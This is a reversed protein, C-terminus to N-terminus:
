VTTKWTDGNLKKMRQAFRCPGLKFLDGTAKGNIYCQQLDGSYGGAPMFMIHYRDQDVTSLDFEPTNYGVFVPPPVETMGYWNAVTQVGKSTFADIFDQTITSSGTVMYRVCSMDLDAFGKTNKLLELHKPILSLYTPQFKKFNEIYSYPNFNASLLKAGALQAPYATITYHAITNAPFVDLVRDQSTLQIEKISAAACEKIYDWSHTVQKPEDTSGSTFLTLM